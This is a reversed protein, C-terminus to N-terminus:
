QPPSSLFNAGYNPSVAKVEEFRPLHPLIDKIPLAWWDNEFFFLYEQRFIYNMLGNTLGIATNLFFLFLGGWLLAEFYNTVKNEFSQNTGDDNDLGFIIARKWWPADKMEQEKRYDEAYWLAVLDDERDYLQRWFEETLRFADLTPLLKYYSSPQPYLNGFVDFPSKLCLGPIHNNYGYPYYKVFEKVPSNPLYVPDVDSGGLVLSEGVVSQDSTDNNNSVPTPRLGIFTSQIQRLNEILDFEVETMGKSNPLSIGLEKYLPHVWYEQGNRVIKELDIQNMQQMIQIQEDVRNRIREAQERAQEMAEGEADLGGENLKMTKLGEQMLAQQRLKHQRRELDLEEDSKLVEEFPSVSPENPDIDQFPGRKPDIQPFDLQQSVGTKGESRDSGESQNQIKDSFRKKRIPPKAGNKRAFLASFSQLNDSRRARWFSPHVFSQIGRFSVCYILLIWVLSIIVM